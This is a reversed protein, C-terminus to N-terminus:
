LTRRVVRNGVSAAQLAVGVVFVILYNSYRVELEAQAVVATGLRRQTSTLCVVSRIFLRSPRPM